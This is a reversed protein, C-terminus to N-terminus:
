NAFALGTQFISSEGGTVRTGLKTGPPANEFRVRIEAQTKAHNRAGQPRPQPSRVAPPAHVRATIRAPSLPGRPQSGKSAQKYMRWLESEQDITDGLSDGVFPISPIVVNRVFGWGKEQWSKQPAPPPPKAGPPLEAGTIKRAAHYAGTMDKWASSPDLNLVDRGLGLTSATLDAWPHSGSQAKQKATGFMDVGVNHFFGGVNHFFQRTEKPHKYAYIGGAIAALAVAAALGWPGLRPLVSEGLMFLRPALRAGIRAAWPLARETVWPIARETVWPVARETVFSRAAGWGTRLMRGAWPLAKETVFGRAASWGSRLGQAGTRLMRGAWPLAKETVFGRAASWGSRLGQAGTRLMRGAWPLAKETVFGRAASWGARLMRGAWPAAKDTVFRRAGQLARYTWGKRAFNRAIAYVATMTAHFKARRWDKNRIDKITALANWAIDILSFHKALFTPANKAIRAAWLLRSGIKIKSYWDHVNWLGRDLAGLIGKEKAPYPEYNIDKYWKRIDGVKGAYRNALDVPRGYGKKRAAAEATGVLKQPYHRLDAAIRKLNSYTSQNAIRMAERGLPMVRSNVDRAGIRAGTLGDFRAVANGLVDFLMDLTSRTRAKSPPPGDAATAAM